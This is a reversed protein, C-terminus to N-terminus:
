FLIKKKNFKSHTVVITYVFYYNYRVRSNEDRWYVLLKRFDEKPRNKLRDRMTKYKSFHYKKILCKYRRWADNIIAFVVKNGKEPIIYREQSFLLCM